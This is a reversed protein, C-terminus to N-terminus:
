SHCSLGIQCLIATGMHCCHLATTTCFQPFHNLEICIITPWHRTHTRTCIVDLATQCTTSEEICDHQEYGQRMKDNKYRKLKPTDVDRSKMADHRVTYLM